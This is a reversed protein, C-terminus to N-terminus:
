TQTEANFALCLRFEKLCNGSLVILGDEAMNPAFLVPIKLQFMIKKRVSVLHNTHRFRFM